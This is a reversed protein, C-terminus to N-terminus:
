ELLWKWIPKIVIKKDLHMEISEEDETLILGEKLNYTIMADLLGQVERKKTDDNTLSKTVQIAYIVKGKNVEIFDCEFNEFHYYLEKERRKLELFVLNELLRGRDETFKFSINNAFGNDIVYIKKPNVIQKKISYDFKNLQFLLYTNEFYNIYEKITTASAVGLINKLSTYSVKKGVNSILFYILEKLTKENQLNYRNMVDKYLINDYLTKLYNVNNTKLYEAIGGNNLYENFLKKIKIQIKIDYIDNKNLKLNNFELYEKFSFPFLEIEINRGTLHTGFEKSLMKANSGTVIVKKGENHLRRVFREWGVINQIEDFYYINQEDYLELFSEYLKEFDDITFNILRNDDFNLFYNNKKSEKRLQLLLTSKGSRRLGTIILILDNTLNEKIYDFKKRHVFNNEKITNQSVIIQKLEEKEM